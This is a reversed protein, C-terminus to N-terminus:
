DLDPDEFAAKVTTKELTTADVVDVQLTHQPSSGIPTDMAMAFSLTAGTVGTLDIVPSRLSTDTGAGYTGVLNTGWCKASGGNGTTVNGGGGTAEPDGYAWPTGGATVVSFGGNDTEFDEELLTM